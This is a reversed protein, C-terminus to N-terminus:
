HYYYHKGMNIGNVLYECIFLIGFTQGHLLFVFAVLVM